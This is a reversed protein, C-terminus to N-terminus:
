SESMLGFACFQFIMLQDRFTKVLCAFNTTLILDAVAGICAEKFILLGDGFIKVLCAFSPFLNLDM